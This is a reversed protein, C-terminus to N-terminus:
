TTSRSPLTRVQAAIERALTHSGDQIACKDRPHSHGITRIRPHVARRVATLPAHFKMIIGM